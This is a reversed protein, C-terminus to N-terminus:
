KTRRLRAQLCLRRGQGSLRECDSAAVLSADSSIVTRIWPSLVAVRSYVGPQNLAACPFAGWSVIGAQMRWRGQNDRVILPGGSDGDCSDRKIAPYGACIMRASVEGDYSNRDNCDTRAFIPVMVQKLKIPYGGGSPITSGWGIVFAKEGTAALTSEQAPTLLEAFFAIGAAPTTLTIVAVDYDQTEDDYSPHVKIQAIKHRTGGAATALSQTGTLVLLNKPQERYVCHAATVVHFRDVLTGGCRESQYNNGAGAELLAVQFPWAGPRADVGGIIADYNAPDLREAGALAPRAVAVVLALVCAALIGWLFRHM